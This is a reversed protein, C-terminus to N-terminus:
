RHYLHFSELFFDMEDNLSDDTHCYVQLMYFTDDSVTAIGKISGQGANYKLRFSYGLEGNVKTDHIYIVKGGINEAATSISAKIFTGILDVSDPLFTGTPYDVQNILYLKNKDEANGEYTFALTELAGVATSVSKRHLLMEGPVVVEFGQDVESVYKIWDEQGYSTCVIIIM